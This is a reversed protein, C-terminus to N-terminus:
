PFYLSLSLCINYMIVKLHFRFFVSGMSVSVLITTVLSQPPPPFPSISILPYSIRTVLHTLEPARIYLIIIITLSVTYCVQFNTLYYIIFTKVGGWGGGLGM